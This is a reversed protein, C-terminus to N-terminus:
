QGTLRQQAIELAHELKQTREFLDVVAQRWIFLLFETPESDRVPVWISNGMDDTSSQSIKLGQNPTEIIRLQNAWGSVVGQWVIRPLVPENEKKMTTKKCVPCSVFSPSGQNTIIGLGFCIVCTKDSEFLIKNM